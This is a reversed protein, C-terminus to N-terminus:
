DTTKTYELIIYITKGNLNTDSNRVYLLRRGQQDTEFWVKTTWEHVGGIFSVSPTVGSKNIGVCNICLDINASTIDMSSTVASEPTTSIPATTQIVKQYIKKGDIWYKGTWQEETSYRIPTKSEGSDGTAPSVFAKIIYTVSTNTPRSTMYQPVPTSENQAVTLANATGYKSDANQPNTSKAGALASAGTWYNVHATADQHTGVNAGSGQNAHGNTGTGRLFEGRLDPVKFTTVGDGGFFNSSGFQTKFFETLDPYDEILHTTGDCILYGTPATLGMLPLIAGIPINEGIFNYGSYIDGDRILVPQTNM